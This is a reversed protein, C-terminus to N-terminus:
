ATARNWGCGARPCCRKLIMWSEWGCATQRWLKSQKPPPGRYILIDQHLGAFTFTGDTKGNLATITMYKSEGFRSINRTLTKNVLALLQTPSIDPTEELATHIATQAMMMILGPRFVTASVDGIVVWNQGNASLVDYYDGGVEDAQRLSAAIEFGSLGPHSPVLATQIKRALKMEGWLANMAKEIRVNAAKLEKRSTDLSTITEKLREERVRIQNAMWNM